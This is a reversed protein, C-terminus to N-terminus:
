EDMWKMGDYNGPEIMLELVLTEQDDPQGIRIESLPSYDSETWIFVPVDGHQERHSDLAEILASIKM